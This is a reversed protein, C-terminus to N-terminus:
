RNAGQQQPALNCSIRGGSLASILRNANLSWMGQWNSDAAGAPGLTDADLQTASSAGTQAAISRALKPDLAREPFVAKIRLQRILKVLADLQRPSAASETSQTPLLTGRITLGLRAALYGFADHDTVLNRESSTLRQACTRGAADLELARKSLEAARARFGAAGQPHLKALQEAIAQAAAAVNRPDHFWHPDTSGQTEGPLPHPIVTSVDLLPGSNGSRQKLRTVWSDLGGNAAVLAAGALAQIDSPRPEYEHPDAGSPVLVSVPLANGAVSSAISGVIPTTAVVGGPKASSGCGALALAAILGTTSLVLTRVLPRAVLQSGFVALGAVAAISAGPPLNFGLSLLLGGIGSALALCATLSQWSRVSRVWPRAAIAPLVLMAAALLSGASALQAIAAVAVTLALLRDWGPRRSGTLGSDLWRPGGIVAAAAALLAIAGTAVLDAWTLTLLSGFLAAQAAMSSVGQRSAILAGVALAATLWLGTSSSNRSGPRGQSGGAGVAVVAAATGAGVMPLAGLADAAVLGPFAATGIAHSFFALSRMAIWPGIAGSIVALLLLEVCARQAYGYGLQTM